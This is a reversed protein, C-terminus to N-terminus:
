AGEQGLPLRPQTPCAKWVTTASRAGYVRRTGDRYVLGKQELPKMRPSLSDRAVNMSSALEQTTLGSPWYRLTRMIDGEVREVHVTEAACDSTIPDSTRSLAKLFGFM